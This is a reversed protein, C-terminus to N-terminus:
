SPTIRVAFYLCGAQGTPALRAIRTNQGRRQPTAAACYSDVHAAWFRRHREESRWVAAGRAIHLYMSRAAVAARRRPTPSGHDDARTASISVQLVRGSDAVHGFLSERRTSATGSILLKRGSYYPLYTAKDRRTRQTALPWRWPSHWPCSKYISRSRGEDFQEPWSIAVRDKVGSRARAQESRGKRALQGLPGPELQESPPSNDELTEANTLWGVQVRGFGSSGDTQSEPTEPTGIFPILYGTRHHHPVECEAAERKGSRAERKMM